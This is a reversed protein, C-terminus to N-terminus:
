GSPTQPHAPDRLPLVIRFVAGHQTGPSVSLTGGHTEVISQCIALGMGMGNSKTTFFADFVRDINNPEIGTGSDAVSIAMRGAELRESKIRLERARDGVIRMADAANSVLNLIVQQLQGRHGHLGLPETSLDLDVIVRAADLDGKAIVVTQRILDNTDIPMGTQDTKSFMAQVSKIVENARGGDAAIQKLVNRVEDLQPPTRNLWLLGAGANMAIATLPQRIEHAISASMAAMMTRRAAEALERRAGRLDDEAQKLETVDRGVAYIRNGDVTANWSLWRYSGDKRRFRSEFPV